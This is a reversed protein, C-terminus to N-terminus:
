TITTNPCLRESLEVEEARVLEEGFLLGRDFKKLSGYVKCASADRDSRLRVLTGSKM